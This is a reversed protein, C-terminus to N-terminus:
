KLYAMAIGAAVSANLSNIKGKQEISVIHDSSNLVFQGVGKNEGGLVLLLKEPAEAIVDEFRKDGKADLSVITYGNDKANALYSTVGGHRHIDLFETAGASVKVISAYIEPTGKEPLLIGKFGFIEASRLVAGVNQPDEVNNLLIVRDHSLVDEMTAYKFPSCLMVVGQHDHSGCTDILRGKEELTYSINNKDLVTILKKIRPNKMASTSIMASKIDRKGSRIVEFASNIGYIFGQDAPKNVKKRYDKNPQNDRRKYDRGSNRDKRRYDNNM